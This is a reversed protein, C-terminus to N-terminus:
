KSNNIIMGKLDFSENKIKEKNKLAEEIEYNLITTLENRFDAMIKNKKVSYKKKMGELEEIRQLKKKFEPM